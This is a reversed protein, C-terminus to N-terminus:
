AARVAGSESAPMKGLHELRKQIAFRTRGHMVGIERLALSQDFEATLLTDEEATWPKGSNPPLSDERLKENVSWALRDLAVALAQRVDAKLCVSGEPLAVETEPCKGQHLARIIKMAMQLEM